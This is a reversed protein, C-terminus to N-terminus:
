LFIVMLYFPQRKTILLKHIDNWYREMSKRLIFKTKILKM